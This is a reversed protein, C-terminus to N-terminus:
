CHGRGATEEPETELEGRWMESHELDLRAKKGCPAVESEKLLPHKIWKNM